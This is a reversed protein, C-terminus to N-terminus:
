LTGLLFYDYGEPVLESYLFPYSVLKSYAYYYFELLQTTVM